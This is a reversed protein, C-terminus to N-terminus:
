DNGGPHRSFGGQGVSSPSQGQDESRHASALAFRSALFGALAAAGLFALPQERGFSQGKAMLQDIDNGEVQRGLSSLGGAIDRAYRAVAKQDSQDLEGAVKSVANAIGNIQGALFDKHEGAFSKASESAQDRLARADAAAQRSVEDLDRKASEAFASGEAQIRSSVSQDPSQSPQGGADYQPDRQTM